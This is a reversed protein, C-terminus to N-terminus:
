SGPTRGPQPRAGPLLATVVVGYERLEERLGEAFSFMFARTPGYISEYPTPTLASLSSTILIHGSRQTAMHRVVHKAM